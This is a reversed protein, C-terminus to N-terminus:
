NGIKNRPPAPPPNRLYSDEGRLWDQRAPRFVDLAISDELAEVLHAENEAIQMVGGVGVVEEGSDFEFRLLGELVWSVQENPHQHRPVIAGKKLYIRAMTLGSTHIVQRGIGPSLEEREIQDWRYRRM